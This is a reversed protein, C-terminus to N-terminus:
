RQYDAMRACARVLEVSARLKESEDEQPPRWQAIPLGIRDDNRRFPELTIAGQYDIDCLAKMIAPWDMNGTGPFGRHNENGQFYFLRDGAMRIADPISREEINAHFTDFLLGLAPHDVADIVRLAQSVTSIVDTEYRNLPEVSLLCGASEAVPALDSLATVVREERAKMEDDAVPAPARGAFVMPAGYLPGGVSIAGVTEALEICYQLYDTGAQRIAPDSDSISRALSVRAALAIQLGADDLALRIDGAALGEEPEPVLLEVLDFGLEKMRVFLGLHERGFPRAFQMSIIGIPNNM